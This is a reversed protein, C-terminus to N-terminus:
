IVFTLTTFFTIHQIIRIVVASFDNDFTTLSSFTIPADLALLLEYDVSPLAKEKDSAAKIVAQCGLLALQTPRFKFQLIAGATDRFVTSVPGIRYTVLALITVIHNLRSAFDNRHSM